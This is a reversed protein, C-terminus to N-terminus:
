MPREDRREIRRRYEFLDIEDDLYAIRAKHEPTFFRALLYANVVGGIAVNFAVGFWNHAGLFSLTAGFAALAVGFAALTMYLRDKTKWTM